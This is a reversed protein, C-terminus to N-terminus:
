LSSPRLRRFNAAIFKMDLAKILFHIKPLKGTRTLRSNEPVQARGQGIVKDVHQTVQVHSAMKVNEYSPLQPQHWLNLQSHYAYLQLM